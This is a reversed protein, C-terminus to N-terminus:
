LYKKKIEMFNTIMWMVKAFNEWFKVWFDCQDACFKVSPNLNEWFNSWINRM